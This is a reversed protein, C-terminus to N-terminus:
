AVVSLMISQNYLISKQINQKDVMETDKSEIITTKKKGSPDPQM